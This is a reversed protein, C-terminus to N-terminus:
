LADVQDKMLAILPSIVLTLDPLLLAPLQYIVSKGSGTPMISLVHKGNLIADIAEKQKGRFKRYGFYKFFEQELSNNM